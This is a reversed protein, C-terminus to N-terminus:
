KEQGSGWEPSFARPAFGFDDIAQRHDFCLDVNMRTAMETTIEQKGPLLMASRIALRYLWLPAILFHAPKGLSSFIKEVMQRYSLTEGGSLNYAKNFTLPQSLATMCAQALDAAHVPQRLGAAQGILPFFGYRRIFGGIRTINKDRVCDYVLTPRFITWDMGSASCFRCVAEEAEALRTAVKREASNASHAKSFVSTSGFGVVRKLQLTNLIPLLPPLLWLPALHILIQTNVDPIQGPESMDAQHWILKGNSPVAEAARRSIAHVEYGADLLDPLLFKGIISTAGTVMIKHNSGPDAM